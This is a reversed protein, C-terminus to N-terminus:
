PAPVQKLAALLGQASKSLPDLKTYVSLYAADGAAAAGYADTSTPVGAVYTGTPAAVGTVDALRSLNAAYEGVASSSTVGAPLVIRVAGVVNQPFEDRLLDGAQRSPASTPLLRDDPYAVKVSLFP